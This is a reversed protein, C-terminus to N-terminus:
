PWDGWKRPQKFDNRYLQTWGRYWNDAIYALVLATWYTAKGLINMM